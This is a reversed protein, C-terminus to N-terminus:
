KLFSKDFYEMVLIVLGLISLLLGVVFPFGLFLSQVTDNGYQKGGFIAYWLQSGSWRTMSPIYTAAVVIITLTTFLGGLMIFGGIVTRKM